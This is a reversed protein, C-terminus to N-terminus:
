YLEFIEIENPICRTNTGGFNYVTDNAMDYKEYCCDVEWCYVIGQFLFFDNCGFDFATNERYSVAKDMAQEKLKLMQLGDELTSRLVFLFSTLSEDKGYKVDQEQNYKWKCPTYGGYIWNEENHVIVVTNGKDQCYKYFNEKKFGHETARYILKWNWAQKTQEKVYHTLLTKEKMKLIKSDILPGFFDKCILKCEIPVHDLKNEISMRIWGLVLLEVKNDLFVSAAKTSM